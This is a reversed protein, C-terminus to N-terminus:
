AARGGASEVGEDEAWGNRGGGVQQAGAKSLRVELEHEHRARDFAELSFRSVNIQLASGGAGGAGGDASRSAGAGAAMALGEGSADHLALWRVDARGGSEGAAARM